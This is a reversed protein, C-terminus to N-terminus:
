FNNGTNTPIRLRNKMLFLLQVEQLLTPCLEVQDYEVGPQNGNAFTLKGDDEPWVVEIFDVGKGSPRSWHFTGPVGSRIWAEILLSALSIRYDAAKLFQILITAPILPFNRCMYAVAEQQMRESRPRFTAEEFFDFLEDSSMNLIKSRGERTMYFISQATRFMMPNEDFFRVEKAKLKKM